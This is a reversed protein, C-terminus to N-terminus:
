TNEEEKLFVQELMDRVSWGDKGYRVSVPYASGYKSIDDRLVYIGVDAYGNGFVGFAWGDLLERLEADTVIKWDWNKDPRNRDFEHNNLLFKM